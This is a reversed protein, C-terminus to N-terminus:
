VDPRAAFHESAEEVRQLDRMPVPDDVAFAVVTLRSRLICETAGRVQQEAKEVNQLLAADVRAPRLRVLAPADPVEATGQACEHTAIRVVFCASKEPVIGILERDQPAPIV